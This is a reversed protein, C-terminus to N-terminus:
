ASLQSVITDDAGIPAAGILKIQRLSPPHRRSCSSPRIYLVEAAWGSLPDGHFGYQPFCCKPKS